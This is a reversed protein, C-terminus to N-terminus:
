IEDILYIKETNTEICGMNSKIPIAFPFFHIALITEICGMNSKIWQTPTGNETDCETEICGM